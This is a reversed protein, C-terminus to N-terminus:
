LSLGSPRKAIRGSSCRVQQPAHTDMASLKNASLRKTLSKTLKKLSASRSMPKATDELAAGGAPGAGSNNAFPSEAAEALNPKSQSRKFLGGRKPAAAM